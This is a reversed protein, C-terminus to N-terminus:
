EPEPKTETNKDFIVTGDPWMYFVSVAEKHVRNFFEIAEEQTLFDYVWVKQVGTEPNKLHLVVTYRGTAGNNM